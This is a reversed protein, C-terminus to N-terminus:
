QDIRDPDHDYDSLGATTSAFGERNFTVAAVGSNFNDPITGTFAAQVKLVRESATLPPM